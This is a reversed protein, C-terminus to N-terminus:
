APPQRRETPEVGLANGGLYSGLVAATDRRLSAASSALVVQGRALVYGRDAVELAQHISQEVLLVATGLETSVQRITPLIRRVVLPALGMSMEDILLVRPKRALACALALMQQEGGSLLGARQKRVRVLDPFRDLAEDLDLRQRRGGIRFHEDVTLGSFIGRSDPIYTLGLAVIGKGSRRTVDVDGLRITGSTAPLQGSISRLLTTKGAGNAGLLVVIEGPDVTLDIDRLVTSGAYGVTVGTVSLGSM